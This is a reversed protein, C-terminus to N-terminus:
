SLRKELYPKFYISDIWVWEDELYILFETYIHCDTFCKGISYVDYIEGDVINEVKFLGM